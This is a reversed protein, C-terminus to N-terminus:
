THPVEVSGLGDLLTETEGLKDAEGDPDPEGDADVEIEGDRDVEIEGDGEAEGDFDTLGDGDAEELTLGDAYYDVHWFGIVNDRHHCPRVAAGIWLARLVHIFDRTIPRPMVHISQTYVDALNARGLRLM